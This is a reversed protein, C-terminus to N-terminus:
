MIVVHYFCIESHKKFWDLKYWNVQQGHENFINVASAVSFMCSQHGLWRVSDRDARGPDFNTEEIFRRDVSSLRGNQPWKRVSNDISSSVKAFKHNALDHMLRASYVQILKGRPHWNDLQATNEKTKVASSSDFHSEQIIDEELVKFSNKEDICAQSRTLIKMRSVKTAKQDKIDKRQENIEIKDIISDSNLVEQNPDPVKKLGREEIIDKKKSGRCLLSSFKQFKSTDM